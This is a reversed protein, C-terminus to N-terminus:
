FNGDFSAKGQNLYEGNYKNSNWGHLSLFGLIVSEHYMTFCKDYYNLDNTQSIQHGAGLLPWPKLKQNM